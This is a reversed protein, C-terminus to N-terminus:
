PIQLVYFAPLGTAYPSNSLTFHGAGDLQNTAVRSWAALPLTLNTTTLLYFTSLPVGNTVTFILNTGTFVPNALKPPTTPAVVLFVVGPTNTNFTYTFGAPASALTLNGFALAGGYTFLPYAGVGFGAANTVALQGTLVLNGSVAVSNGNSGLNFQLLSSDNLTLSNAITLTGGPNGPSLTASNDITTASGISGNGTLTAGAFVELDGTGTGSGAFNNVRLAGGSVTTGGTYNNTGTLTLTGTGIKNVMVASGAVASNSSIVGAFTADTNNGGLVYLTDGSGGIAQPGALLGSGTFAGLQITNGANRPQLTGNIIMTPNVSGFTIGSSNPSYRLSAGAAINITGTFNDFQASSTGGFSVGGTINLVSASQGSYLKGSLGNALAGSSITGTTNAPVTLSGGFFVSGNAPLALTAGNSITLAGNGLAGAVGPALTGGYLNIAGGYNTNATALSLAGSGLKTLPGGGALAGTGGFAYNQTANVTIAAPTLVTGLTVGAANAGTNDFTVTDLNFYLDAASGNAWNFTSTDWSVGNTGRWLLSAATGTVALRIYSPNSGPAATLLAITQRTNAPVNNTLTVSTATSSSAGEILSYTGAGLANDSLTFNFLQPGTMALTGTLNIRDNDGGPSGSLSFNLVPSNNTLNGNITLIGPGNAGPSLIGGGNVTM